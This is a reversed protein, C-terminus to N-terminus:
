GATGSAVGLSVLVAGGGRSGRSAIFDQSDFGHRTDYPSGPWRRIPVCMPDWSPRFGLAQRHLEAWRRLVVSEAESAEVLVSERAASSTPTIVRTLGDPGTKLITSQEFVGDFM